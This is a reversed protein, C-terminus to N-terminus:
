IKKSKILAAIEQELLWSVPKDPYDLHEPIGTFCGANALLNRHTLM